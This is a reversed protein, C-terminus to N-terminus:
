YSRSEPNLAQCLIHLEPWEVARFPLNRIVILNLLAQKIVDKNLIKKLVQSDFETTDNQASAENYLQKLKECAAVKTSSDSVVLVIQHKSKLHNRLNTTASTGYSCKFCYIIKRGKGDLKPEDDNPPRSYQHIPSRLSREQQTSSAEISDLTDILLSSDAESAM